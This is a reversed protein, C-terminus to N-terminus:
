ERSDWAVLESKPIPDLVADFPFGQSVKELKLGHCDCGLLGFPDGEASCFNLVRNVIATAESASGPEPKSV